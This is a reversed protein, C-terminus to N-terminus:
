PNLDKPSLEGQGRVLYDGLEDLSQLDLGRVANLRRRLRQAIRDLEHETMGLFQARHRVLHVPTPAGELLHRFLVAMRYRLAVSMPPETGGRHVGPGRVPTAVASDVAYRTRADELRRTRVTVSVTVPGGLGRGGLRTGGLEPWSLRHDGRQLMVLAHPQYSAAGSQVWDSEVRMPVGAGNAVLWGEDVPSFTALDLPVWDPRVVVAHREGRGITAPSRRPLRQQEVPAGAGRVVIVGTLTPLREVPQRDPGQLAAEVPGAGVGTAEVPATGEVGATEVPATGEDPVAAELRAAARQVPGDAMGDNHPPRDWRVGSEGFRGRHRASGGLM